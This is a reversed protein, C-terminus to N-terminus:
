SSQKPKRLVVALGLLITTVMVVLLSSVLGAVLGTTIVASGFEESRTEKLSSEDISRASRSNDESTISKENLVNVLIANQLGIMGDSAYAINILTSEVDEDVTDQLARFSFNQRDNNEFVLKKASLTFDKGYELEWPQIGIFITANTPKTAVVDIDYFSCEGEYIEFKNLEFNFMLPEREPGTNPEETPWIDGSCSCALCDLDGEEDNDEVIITLNYNEPDVQGISVASINLVMMETMEVDCDNLINVEIKHETDKDFQFVEQKITANFSATYDQYELLGNEETPFYQLYVYGENRINARVYLDLTGSSENVTVSNTDFSFLLPTKSTEDDEIYMTAYDNYYNNRYYAGVQFAFREELEALDDNIITIPIVISSVGPPVVYNGAFPVYDEGPTASESEPSYTPEMIVKLDLSENQQTINTQVILEITGIDESFHQSGNIIGIFGIFTDYIEFRIEKPSEVFVRDPLNEEDFRLHFFETEEVRGDRRICVVAYHYTTYVSLNVTPHPDVFEKDLSYDDNYQATDQSGTLLHITMEDILEKSSRIVIYNSCCGECSPERGSSYGDNFSLTVNREPKVTIITSRPSGVDCNNSFTISVNYTSDQDFFLNSVDLLVLNTTTNTSNAPIIVADYNLFALRRGNYSLDLDVFTGYSLAESRVITILVSNGDLDGVTIFADAM